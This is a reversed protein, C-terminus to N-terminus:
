KLNFSTVNQGSFKDFEEDTIPWEPSWWLCDRFSWVMQDRLNPDPQPLIVDRVSGEFTLRLVHRVKRNYRPDYGHHICAVIGATPHHTEIFQIREKYTDGWKNFGIALWKGSWDYSTMKDPPLDISQDYHVDSTDSPCHLLAKTSNTFADALFEKPYLGDWEDKYTTLVMGIQRLNSICVSKRARERSAQLMPLLLAALLSIIAMVILIELLTFANIKRTEM